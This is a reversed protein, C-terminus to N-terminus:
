RRTEKASASAGPEGKGSVPPPRAGLVLPTKLADRMPPRAGPGPKVAVNGARLPRSTKRDVVAVDMARGTEADIVTLLAGEPALWRNGWEGLAILVPLLDLAKPTPKYQERPPNTQYAERELLGRACLADLRRTLTTPAIPLRAEFDSFTLAGKFAERLVLLTWGEGVEETARAIPCDMNSFSAREM